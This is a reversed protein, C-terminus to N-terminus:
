YEGRQLKGASNDLKEEIRWVVAPGRSATRNCRYKPTAYEVYEMTDYKEQLRRTQMAGRNLITM